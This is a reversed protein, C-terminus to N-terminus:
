VLRLGFKERMLMALTRVPLGVVNFYCGDIREIWQAARGQVAYAGAKDMPEGSAIYNSIEADDLRDFYVKTVCSAAAESGGYFVAVGSAVIHGRGSLMHLMRSADAADRPKGLIEGGCAVVTDAAIVLTDPGLEGRSRLCSVAAREKRLALEKVLLVPAQLTAAEDADPVLVRFRLGLNELIERRRPSGSALVIDMFNVSKKISRFFASRLAQNQGARYARSEAPRSKIIANGPESTLYYYKM